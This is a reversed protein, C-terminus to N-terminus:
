SLMKLTKIIDSLKEIEYDPKVDSLNEVKQPNFWITAIGSNAGGKIDSSLSDGIIVTESLKFNEMHEFCYEFFERSPKSHGIEGSIFFNKFYKGIGSGDIRGHQVHPTGNTAAYLSHNKCLEELAEQAGDTFYYKTSLIKEYYATASEPSIQLGLEKFFIEYRRIKIEDITILNKEFLKWQSSNIESYRCLMKENPTVGFHILMIELASREARNFDFITNDLDLLINKIM